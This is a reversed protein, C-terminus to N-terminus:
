QTLARFIGALDLSGYGWERNPYTLNNERNAGRIFYNRISITNVGLDNQEIVAWQMFDAVAGSLIAAALSSGSDTGLATSIDVGPAALTPVLEGIRSYGRGSRLYFSNNSSDYASVAFGNKTYSPETLTTYPTPTLFYTDARLFGEIPLWMHFQAESEDSEAYVRITWIGSLPKEFKMFILQQGSAREALVYEVSVVSASYLFRYTSIQGIRYNIRPLVEGDPSRLEVTFIQPIEGWLFLSFGFENEGVKLEVDQYNEGGQRVTRGLFHGAANGENGGSIILALNKRRAIDDLFYSFISNGAHDGMTSGIGLCIVLPQRFIKRFKSVYQIALIIDTESYCVAEPPIVYFEKLTQKAPKLKVVVISADPAAGRFTLNASLVSGAAVSAMKTGHGIEDKSPVIEYPQESNIATNMMEQTYESGYLFGEPPEGSQITQDWIALIRSTGDSNKFIDLDFRIGTDIFAIVVGSGTLSLPEDNAELIGSKILPEYNFNQMAAIGGIGPELMLGYCKPITEYKLASISYEPIEERGAYVVFLDEDVQHYCFDADEVSLYDLLINYDVLLDYYDESVIKDRCDM